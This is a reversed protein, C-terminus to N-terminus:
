GEIKKKARILVLGSLNANEATSELHIPYWMSSLIDKALKTKNKYLHMKM